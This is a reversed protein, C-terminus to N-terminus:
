LSSYVSLVQEPEARRSYDEEIFRFQIKHNQDLVFTAPIPVNFKKSSSRKTLDINWKLLQETLAQDIEWILDLKTSLTLGRDYLVPFSLQNDTKMISAYQPLEPTIAVINLGHEHLQYYHQWAQMELMCYPCWGGRIFTVILPKHQLLDISDFLHGDIDFLSFPPFPANITLVNSFKDENQLLSISRNITELIEPPTEADFSSKFNRLSDSLLHM